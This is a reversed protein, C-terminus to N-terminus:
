AAVPGKLKNKWDVEEAGEPVEGRELYKWLAILLKRAVAVIGVRRMRSSSRGFRRFYWKSLESQPQHRLWLWALEGLIWRIYRNGAKSIGQERQTQGSHYPTPVLGALGALERRNRFVRWGFCEYVLITAGTPGVGKLRLLRRVKEVQPTRDDRIRGMRQRELGRIQENLFKWREFERLLRERLGEPLPQDDWQRLRELRKPLHEDVSITLGLGALLGKVRNVHATRECKLEILERHQQRHDEDDATPVNVLSWVKHEGNHWRILMMLLKYVDIRDSKARRARRNVEISSSDVVINHVGHHHLFRHIWFGDRGAEYCSVVPTEEPLGFRMKAKSIERLLRFTDRAGITIMRPKQGLGHSFAVKWCGESLELPM